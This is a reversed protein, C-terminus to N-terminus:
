VRFRNDIATTRIKYEQRVNHRKRTVRINTCRNSNNVTCLQGIETNSHIIIRILFRFVVVYLKEKTELDEM